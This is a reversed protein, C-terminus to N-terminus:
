ELPELPLSLSNKKQGGATAPEVEVPGYLSVEEKKTQKSLRHSSSLKKKSSHPKIFESPMSQRTILLKGPILIVDGIHIRNAKITPNADTLRKWNEGEGTYWLAISFLTEGSWKVKHILPNDEPSPSPKTDVSYDPQPSRTRDPAMAEPPPVQQLSEPKQHVLHGNHSCNVVWGMILLSICWGTKKRMVWMM